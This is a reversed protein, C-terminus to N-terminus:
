VALRVSGTLRGCLFPNLPLMLLCQPYCIIHFRSPPNQTSPTTRRSVEPSADRKPSPKHPSVTGAVKRFHHRRNQFWNWLQKPLVPEDKRQPHASCVCISFILKSNRVVELTKPHKGPRSHYLKSKHFTQFYFLLLAFCSSETVKVAAQPGGAARSIQM